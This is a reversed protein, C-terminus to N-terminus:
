FYSIHRAPPPLLKYTLSLPLLLSPSFADKISWLGAWSHTVSLLLCAVRFVDQTEIPDWLVLVARSLDLSETSIWVFGQTLARSLTEMENGFRFCRGLFMWLIRLEEVYFETCRKSQTGFGLGGAWPVELSVEFVYVGRRLACSSTKILNRFGSWGGLSYGTM